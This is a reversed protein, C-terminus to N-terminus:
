YPICRSWGNIKLPFENTKLPTNLLRKIGLSGYGERFITPKITSVDWGWLLITTKPCVQIRLPHFCAQLKYFYVAM